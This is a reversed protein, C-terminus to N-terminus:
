TLWVVLESNDSLGVKLLLRDQDRNYGLNVQQIAAEVPQAKTLNLETLFLVRM